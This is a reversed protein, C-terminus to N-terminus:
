EGLTHELIVTTIVHGQGDRVVAHITTMLIPKWGSLGLQNLQATLKGENNEQIVRYEAKHAM